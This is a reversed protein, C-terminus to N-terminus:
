HKFKVTKGDGRSRRHNEQQRQWIEGVAEAGIARNKRKNKAFLCGSMKGCVKRQNVDANEWRISQEKRGLM